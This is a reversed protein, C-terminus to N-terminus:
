GRPVVVVPVPSHRVIRSSRSGVFVRKLPGESSSGVALVDTADWGISELAAAWDHGRGVTASVTRPPSPLAAVADLAAQQARGIEATWETVVADEARSGVGATLPTRPRVGFSAVRLSAGARAAVDAIAVALDTDHDAGGFAVTVQGVVSDPAARFGRPALAVPVPATHLLREAVSGFAVRGLVGATSSGLVIMAADREQAVEVLGAAASRAHSVVYDAAVGAPAAARAAALADGAEEDLYRQYEADIRGVGPPWAPPVVTVVVLDEDLSRALLGGLHLAATAREDRPLGIVLSM